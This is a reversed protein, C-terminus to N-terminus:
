EFVLGLYVSNEVLVIYMVGNVCFDDCFLIEIVLRLYGNKECYDLYFFEELIIFYVMGECVWGLDEILIVVWGLKELIGWYDYM